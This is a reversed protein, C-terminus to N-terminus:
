GKRRSCGGRRGRWSTGACAAYHAPTAWSHNKAYLTDPAAISIAILIEADSFNAAYHAPLSGNKDPLDLRAGMQALTKFAELNNGIVASHVPSYGKKDQYDMNAGFDLLMWLVNVRGHLAALTAATNGMEDIKNVDMKYTLLGKMAITQGHTPYAKLLQSCLKM